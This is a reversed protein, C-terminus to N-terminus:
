KCKDGAELQFCQETKQSIQAFATHLMALSAKIAETKREAEILATQLEDVPVSHLSKTVWEAEEASMATSGEEVLLQGQQRYLRALRARSVPGLRQYQIGQNIFKSVPRGRPPPTSKSSHGNLDPRVDIHAQAGDDPAGPDSNEAADDDASDMEADGDGDGGMDGQHFFANFRDRLGQEFEDTDGGGINQHGAKAAELRSQEFDHQMKTIDAVKAEDDAHVEETLERYRELMTDAQKAAQEAAAEDKKEEAIFMKLKKVVEKPKMTKKASLHGHKIAEPEREHDAGLLRRGSRDSQFHEAVMNLAHRDINLLKGGNLAEQKAKDECTARISACDLVGALAGEDAFSEVDHEAEDWADDEVARRTEIATAVCGAVIVLTLLTAATAHMNHM